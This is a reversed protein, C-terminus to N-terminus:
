QTKETLSDLTAKFRLELDYKEDCITSIIQQLRENEHDLEILRDIMRKEKEKRPSEKLEPSLAAEM